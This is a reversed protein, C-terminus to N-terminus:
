YIRRVYVRCFILLRVSNLVLISVNSAVSAFAQEIVVMGQDRIEKITGQRSAVPGHKVQVFDGICM